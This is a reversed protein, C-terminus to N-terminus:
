RVDECESTAIKVLIPALDFLCKDNPDSIWTKIWIGNYEQLQYNEQINDVIITKKLDRGIRSLDKVYNGNFPLAHQRYLRHNIYSINEM